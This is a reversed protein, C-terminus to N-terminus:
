LEDGPAGIAVEDEEAELRELADNLMAALKKRVSFPAETAVDLVSAGEATEALPDAGYDLLLQAHKVHSFKCAFHLPTWGLMDPQQLQVRPDAGRTLLAKLIHTGGKTDDQTVAYFLATHGSPKAFGVSCKPRWANLLTAVVMQGKEGKQVASMLASNGATDVANVGASNDVMEMLAGVDGDRILAFIHFDGSSTLSLLEVESVVTPARAAETASMDFAAGEFTLRRREGACMGLLGENFARPTDTHGLEFHQQEWSKVVFIPPADPSAANLLSYRVMLHDGVEAVAEGCGGEPYHVTEVPKAVASSDIGAHCLSWLSSSALFASISVRMM